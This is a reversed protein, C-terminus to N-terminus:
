EACSSGTRRKKFIHKMVNEPDGDPNCQIASRGDKTIMKWHEEDNKKMAVLAPIGGLAFHNCLNDSTQSDHDIALWSGHSDKMYEIMEHETRDSSVFIIEVDNYVDSEM